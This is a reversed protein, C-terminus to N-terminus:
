VPRRAHIMLCDGQGAWVSLRTLLSPIVRLRGLRTLLDRPRFGRNKRRALAFSRRMWSARFLMREACVELGHAKVLRRLTAPTFHLLHLPLQLGYWDTGFHRFGWSALNPVSIVVSGGPRLARVAAGLVLHPDPVHELSAGLTILDYSEPGVAPHPLTGVLVPIGYHESVSRAAHASFDMGTVQWGQEKMRHAYWGAGCGYDLMKGEGWYPLTTLSGRGWGFWSGLVTALAKEYWRPRPAPYGYGHALVLRNLYNRARGWRGAQKREPPLYWEYDEPYFHGISEADPRPNLYGLGCARCRVLRYDEPGPGGAVTLVLEADDAECLPCAVTEWVVPKPERAQPASVPLMPM